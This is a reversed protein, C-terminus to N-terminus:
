RDDKAKMQELSSGTNEVKTSGPKGRRKWTQYEMFKGSYLIVPLIVAQIRPDTEIGLAEYVEVIDALSEPSPVWGPYGTMEAAIEGPLRFVLRIVAPQLPIKGTAVKSSGPVTGPEEVASAQEQSLPPEIEPKVADVTLGGSLGGASHDGSVEIGSEVQEEEKKPM